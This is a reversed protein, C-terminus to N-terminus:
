WCEGNMLYQIKKNKKKAESRREICKKYWPPLEFSAVIGSRETRYTGIKDVDGHVRAKIVSEFWLSVCM